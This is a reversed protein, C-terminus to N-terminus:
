KGDADTGPGVRGTAAMGVGELFNDNADMMDRIPDIMDPLGTVGMAQNVAARIANSTITAGSVSDVDTSDTRVIMDPLVEIARTGVGETEHHETVKVETIDDGNMSVTVRLIGGYGQAEGSRTAASATCGTMTASLLICLLLSCIRRMM